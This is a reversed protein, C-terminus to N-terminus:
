ESWSAAPRPPTGSPWAWRHHRTGMAKEKAGEAGMLLERPMSRAAYQYTRFARSGKTVATNKSSATAHEPTSRAPAPTPRECRVPDGMQSLRALMAMPPMSPPTATCITRRFWLYRSPCATCDLVRAPIRLMMRDRGLMSATPSTCLWYTPGLAKVYLACTSKSPM